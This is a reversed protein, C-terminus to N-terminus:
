RTSKARKRRISTTVAVAAVTLAFVAGATSVAAWPASSPKVALGTGARPATPAASQGTEDILSVVRLTGNGVLGVAVLTYVTGANLRVGDVSLAVNSTGAVLVDLDYTGPDVAIYPSVGRFPVSSVLKVSADRVAIDVSPADPSAHVFRVHAKGAAPPTTGDTLPLLTLSGDGLRGTAVVTYARGTEITLTARLAPSGTGDSPSVFVSVDHPGAPLSLYPTAQPFALASLAKQGDVFIDVAPTDPSAHIVRVRGGGVEASVRSLPLLSFVAAFAALFLVSRM